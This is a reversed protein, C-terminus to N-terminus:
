VIQMKCCNRSILWLEMKLKKSFSACKGSLCHQEILKQLFSTGPYMESIREILPFQLTISKRSSLLETKTQKPFRHSESLFRTLDM